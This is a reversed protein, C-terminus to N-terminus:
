WFRNAREPEAPLRRTHHVKALRLTWRTGHAASVELMAPAGGLGEIGWLFAATKHSAMAGPLSLTAAMVKPHWCDTGGPFRYVGAAVRVWLGEIVRRRIAWRSVGNEIAQARSFVGWQKLALKGLAENM